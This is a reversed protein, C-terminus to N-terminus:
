LDLKWNKRPNVVSNFIVIRWTIYHRLITLYKNFIIVTYCNNRQMVVSNYSKNTWHQIAVFYKCISASFQIFVTSYALFETKPDKKGWSRHPTHTILQTYAVNHLNRLIKEARNKQEKALQFYNICNFFSAVFIELYYFAAAKEEFCVCVCVSHTGWCCCCCRTFFLRANKMFMKLKM